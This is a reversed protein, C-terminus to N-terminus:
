KDGKGILGSYSSEVASLFWRRGAVRRVDLIRTLFEMYLCLPRQTIDNMHFPAGAGEKGKPLPVWSEEDDPLMYEALESARGAEHLKQVRPRHEGMNSVTDCVAGISSHKRPKTTDLTKFVNKGAKAVIFGFLLGTEDPVKIPKNKLSKEIVKAV